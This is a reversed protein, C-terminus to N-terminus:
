RDGPDEKKPPRTTPDSETVRVVFVSTTERVPTVGLVVYHRVSPYRMVLRDVGSDVPVFSGLVVAPRWIRLADAATRREVRAEKPPDADTATVPVGAVGLLEALEGDGSGVEM